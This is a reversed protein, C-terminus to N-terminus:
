GAAVRTLVDCLWVEYADLDWGLMRTGVLYTEAAGIVAASDALRAVDAGAPLLGDQAMASWVAHSDQRSQERGRRWQEAILPEIAAAQEAVAFLAGTRAMIARNAAACAAIREQVTPAQLAPVMWDRGLVAIDAVDGVIAVDVVRKFLDAKTGFRVYVTRLAVDAADAVAALTTGSYGEALFLATAAAVIAAETRVVQRRRRPSTPKVEDSM